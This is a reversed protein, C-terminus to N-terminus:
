ICISLLTVVLVAVSNVTITVSSSVTGANAPTNVPTPTIGVPEAVPEVAVPEAVPATPPATISLSFSVSSVGTANAVVSFTGTTTGATILPSSAHGTLATSVTVTSLGGAFVSGSAGHIAFVVASGPVPNNYKDQVLVYLPQIFQAGAITSQGDGSSILMVTAADPMNTMLFSASVAVGNVAAIVEYNGSLTNAIFLSSSAVGNSGTVATFKATNSDRFVGSPSTAPATFTVEVDAISNDYQDKVIVSLQSFQTGVVASTTPNNYITVQSPAAPSSSLQISVAVVGPTSVTIVFSGATTTATLSPSTAIGQANSLVTNNGNFTASPGSSPANFTVPVNAVVNNYQDTVTVSLLSTFETNVVASQDSGSTISLVAPLGPLITFSFQTRLAGIAATINFSGAITGAVPANTEAIGDSDTNRSVSNTGAFTLRPGTTPATFTVSAGPIPNTYQDTIIVSLSSMTASPRVSQSNGANVAIHAAAGPENECTFTLVTSISSTNVLVSFPGAIINATFVSSTAIGATDTTASYFSSGATFSGSSTDGSPAFFGVSIGARPNGFKDAVFVAFPQSYATAVKASRTTPTQLVFQSVTGATNTMTFTLNHAGTVSVNFTGAINSATPASVTYRGDAGTLGTIASLGNFTLSASTPVPATLTISSGPVANGYQDQALFVINKGYPTAVTATQDGGNILTLQNAVAPTNTLTILTPSTIGQVVVSLTWAGAITNATLSYGSTSVTGDVNTPLTISTTNGDFIGSASTAAVSFTVASGRVLNGFSDTVNVTLPNFAHSVEAFQKDGLVIAVNSANGVVVTVDLYVTINGYATATVEFDGLVGNARCEEAQARGLSDITVDSTHKNGPFLCSPGTNPTRFTVRFQSAPNGFQDLVMVYLPNAVVEGAQVLQHPTSEAVFDPVNNSNLAPITIINVTTVPASATIHYTGAVSNAKYVQSPSAVGEEDSVAVVTNLNGAFSGGASTDPSPVVVFTVTVSPVPNGYVDQVLVKIPDSAEGTRAMVIYDPSILVLKDALDHVNTFAIHQQTTPYGPCVVTVQYDGAITNARLTGSTLQGSVDSTVNFSTQDENFFLSAGSLPSSFLVPTDPIVNDYVDYVTVGIVNTFSNNVVVSPLVSGVYITLKAPDNPINFQNIDITASDAVVQVVFAGAQQNTRLVGSTAIGESDSQGEYTNMSDFTAAADGLVQVSFTVLKSPVTNNYEDFVRVVIVQFDGMVKVHQQEGSLVYIVDVPGPVNELYVNTSATTSGGIDLAGITIHYSGSVQNAVMSPVGVVQGQDNTLLEVSTQLSANVEFYATAKPESESLGISLQVQVGSHVTNDYMDYVTLALANFHQAVTTQDEEYNSKISTPKGPLNDFTFDYNLTLINELGPISAHVTFQGAYQNARIQRASVYGSGNTSPTYITSNSELFLGSPIGAGQNLGPILSFTVQQYPVVNNFRDRVYLRITPSYLGTVVANNTTSAPSPYIIDFNNPTDPTNTLTFAVSHEVGSVSATLQYEGTVTNARFDLDARLEVLGQSDTVRFSDNEFTGGPADSAQPANFTVTIGPVPNGFQDTVLVVFTEGFYTDVVADADIVSQISLRAPVNVINTLTFVVENLGTSNAKVQFTGIRESATATTRAIGLASSAGIGTGTDVSSQGFTATVVTSHNGPPAWFKVTVGPVSNNYMDRARVEFEYDEGVKAQKTSEGVIEISEAQDPL